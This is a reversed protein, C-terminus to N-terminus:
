ESKEEEDEQKEQKKDKKGPKEESEPFVKNIGHQILIGFLAFLLFLGFGKGSPDVWDLVAPSAEAKELMNFSGIMMGFSGVLSTSVTVILKFFYLSLFGFVVFGIGMAILISLIQDEKGRTMISVPEATIIAGGLGGLFFVISKQFPIALFFGLLGLFVVLLLSITGPINPLFPTIIYTQILYGLVVGLCLGSFSIMFRYLRWGTIMLLLGAAIAAVSIMDVAPEAAASQLLVPRLVGTMRLILDPLM